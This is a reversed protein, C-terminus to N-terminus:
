MEIMGNERSSDCESVISIWIRCLEGEAVSSIIHDRLEPSSCAADGGTQLGAQDGKVGLPIAIEMDEPSQVLDPVPHDVPHECGGSVNGIGNGNQPCARVPGNLIPLDSYPDRERFRGRKRQAWYPLNEGLARAHNIADDVTDFRLSISQNGGGCGSSTPNDTLPRKASETMAWGIQTPQTQTM